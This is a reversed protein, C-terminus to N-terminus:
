ARPAPRCSSAVQRNQDRPVFRLTTRAGMTGSPVWEGPVSMQPRDDQCLCGSCYLVRSEAGSVPTDGALGIVGALALAGAALSSTFSLPM